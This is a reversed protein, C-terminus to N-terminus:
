LEMWPVEQLVAVQLQAVQGVGKVGGTCQFRPFILRCPLFCVQPQEPVPLPLALCFGDPLPNRAVAASTQSCYIDGM